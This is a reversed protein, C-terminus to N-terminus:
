PNIGSWGAGGCRRSRGNGENHVSAAGGLVKRKEEGEGGRVAKREEKDCIATYVRLLREFSATSSM